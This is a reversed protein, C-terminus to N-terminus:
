SLQMRHELIVLDGERETMVNDRGGIEDPVNHLTKVKSVAMV